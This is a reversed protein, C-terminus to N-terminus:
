EISKKTTNQNEKRMAVKKEKILKKEGRMGRDSSKGKGHIRGKKVGHINEKGGIKM